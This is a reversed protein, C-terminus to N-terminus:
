SYFIQFFVAVIAVSQSLKSILYSTYYLPLSYEFQKILFRDPIIKLFSNTTYRDMVFGDLHGNRVRDVLMLVDTEFSKPEEGEGRNWELKGGNSAVVYADYDRFLLSGVAAGKMSPPQPSNLKMVEAYVIGIPLAYAIIGM